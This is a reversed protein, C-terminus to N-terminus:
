SARRKLKKEVNNKDNHEFKYFIICKMVLILIM